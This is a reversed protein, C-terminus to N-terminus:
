LLKVQLMVHIFSYTKSNVSRAAESMSYADLIVVSTLLCFDTLLMQHVCSAGTYNEPFLAIYIDADRKPVKVHM